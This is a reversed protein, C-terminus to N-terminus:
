TFPWSPWRPCFQDAGTMARIGHDGGITRGAAIPRLASRMIAKLGMSAMREFAYLAEQGVGFAASGRYPCADGDIRLLLLNISRASFLLVIGFYPETTKGHVDLFRETHVLRM